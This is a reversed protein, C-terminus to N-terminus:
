FPGRPVRARCRPCEEQQSHWLAYIVGPIIGCILLVVCTLLALVDIRRREFKGLFGCWPCKLELGRGPERIFAM